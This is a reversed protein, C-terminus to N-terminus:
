FARVARVNFSDFKIGSTSQTWTLDASEQSSSWYLDSISNGWDDIGVGYIDFITTSDFVVFGGVVDKHSYLLNLEDKSPLYWGLGYASAVSAATTEDCGAIIDVTNQEGTGVVTGNAGSIPTGWCGWQTKVQDETAAELGHLGGDTVHFVIGGAPGADGIAYLSGTASGGLVTWVAAGASSDVLIYPKAASTDIWVTGVSYSSNMDDNVTPATSFVVAGLGAPGAVTSDAGTAGVAGTDGKAGATGAAGTPGVLGQSGTTGVAGTAGTDGKAGTDGIGGIAGATGTDGTDGTDGKAGTNGIGGIAGAAGTDGKAGTNGFQGQAGTLGTQGTAGTAGQAGIINVNNVGTVVAIADNVVALLAVAAAEDAAQQAALAAAIAEETRAAAEAVCGLADANTLVVTGEAMIRGKLPSNSAVGTVTVAQGALIDGKFDGRTLTVADAVWWTVNCADAGGIMDVVFDTGTLAGAGSTGIKFLWTDEDDGNLTLVSGTNTSANDVCYTGPALVQGALTALTYDCQEGALTSYADHFDAQIDQSIATVVDGSQVCSTRTGAVASGVDGEITSNTCNVAGSASLVTFASASGLSISDANALGAVSLALGTLCTKFLKNKM